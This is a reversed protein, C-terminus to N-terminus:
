FKFKNSSKKSVEGIYKNETLKLKEKIASFMKKVDEETYEYNNRNACNGLIDLSDLINQVRRGAVSEFRTRRTSKDM